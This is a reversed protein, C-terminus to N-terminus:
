GPEHVYPADGVSITLEGDNCGEVELQGFTESFGLVPLRGITMRLTGTGPDIAQIGVDVDRDQQLAVSGAGCAILTGDRLQYSGEGVEPPIGPSFSLNIYLDHDELFGPLIPAFYGDSDTIQIVSVLTPDEAWSGRTLEVLVETPGTYSFSSGCATGNVTLIASAAPAKCSRGESPLGGGVAASALAGTGGSGTAGTASGGVAAGCGAGEPCEPDDKADACGFVHLGAM